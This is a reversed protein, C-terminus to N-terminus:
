AGSAAPIQVDWGEVEWRVMHGGAPDMQEPGIEFSIWSRTQGPFGDPLAVTRGGLSSATTGGDLPPASSSVPEAGSLFVQSGLGGVDLTWARTDNVWGQGPISPFGHMGWESCPLIQMLEQPNPNSYPDCINEGQGAPDNPAYCHMYYCSYPFRKTDNRYVREGTASLAHYPPCAKQNDPSCHPKVTPAMVFCIYRTVDSLIDGDCSSGDLKWCGSLEPLYFQDQPAGPDIVRLTATMRSSSPAPGFMVGAGDWPYGGYGGRVDNTRLYNMLWPYRASTRMASYYVTGAVAERSWATFLFSSNALLAPPTPRPGPSPGGSSHNREAQRYVVWAHTHHLLEAQVAAREAPSWQPEIDYTGAFFGAGDISTPSHVMLPQSMFGSGRKMPGCKDVVCPCIKQSSDMNGSKFMVSFGSYNGLSPQPAPRSCLHGLYLEKNRAYLDVDLTNPYGPIDTGVGLENAASSVANGGDALACDAMRPSPAAPFAPPAKAGNCFNWACFATAPAQSQMGPDGLISVWRSTATGHDRVATVVVLVWSLCCVAAVISVAKM